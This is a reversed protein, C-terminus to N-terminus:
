VIDTYGNLYLIENLEDGSITEKNLLSEAVADLFARNETLIQTARKEADRITQIIAKGIINGGYLIAESQSSISVPGIEDNMGYTCIMDQAIRTSVDLDNSAGTSVDGLM